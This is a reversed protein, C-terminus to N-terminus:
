LSDKEGLQHNRVRTINANLRDVVIKGAEGTKENVEEYTIQMNNFRVSDATIKVPLGQLMDVPLKKIVGPERPIRKDRYDTLRADQITVVGLNMVSDLAYKSIDFPGISIAGTNAQL